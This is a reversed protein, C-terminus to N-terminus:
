SWGAMRGNDKFIMLDPKLHGGQFRVRKIFCLQCEPSVLACSNMRVNVRFNCNWAMAPHIDTTRCECEVTTRDNNLSKGSSFSPREKEGMSITIWVRTGSSSFSFHCVSLCNTTRCIVPFLTSDLHCRLFGNTGALNGAFHINDLFISLRFTPLFSRM